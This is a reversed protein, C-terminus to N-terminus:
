FIWISDFKKFIIRIFNSKFMKYKDPKECPHPRIILVLQKKCDQSIQELVTILNNLVSHETYGIFQPNSEDEGFFKVLEQSVFVIFLENTHIHYDNRIKQRTENNFNLKCGVLTDFVPQGTIILIDPNFGEAIMESYALEDMIAIKDPVYKLQGADDSFRQSYNAWFDLVALCPIKLKRASYIFNKELDVYNVSTGTIIIEPKCKQLLDQIGSDTIKEDLVSFSFNAKSMIEIAERYAFILVKGKNDSNLQRIVQVLANAGGSDGCIILMRPSDSTSM